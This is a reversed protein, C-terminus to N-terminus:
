QRSLKYSIGEAEGGVSEIVFEYLRPKGFGPGFSRLDGVIQGPKGATAEAYIFGRKLGTLTSPDPISKALYARVTGKQVELDLTTNGGSIQAVGPINGVELVGDLKEITGTVSYAANTVRGGRTGRVKVGTPKPLEDVWNPPTAVQSATKPKSDAPPAPPALDSQVSWRKPADAPLSKLPNGSLVLKELAPLAVLSSVDDIQNGTLDLNTLAPVDHLETVQGLKCRGLNLTRLSKLGSIPQLSAIPNGDLWLTRLATLKAIPEIQKLSADAIRLEVVHGDQIALAKPNYSLVGPGVPRLQAVAIGAASALADLAQREDAPLKGLEEDISLPKRTAVWIVLAVLLVGVSIAVNRM